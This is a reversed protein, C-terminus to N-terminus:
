FAFRASTVGVMQREGYTWNVFRRVGLVGILMGVALAQGQFRGRCDASPQDLQRHISRLNMRVISM